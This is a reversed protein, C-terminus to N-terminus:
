SSLENWTKYLRSNVWLGRESYIMAFLILYELSVIWLQEYYPVYSYNIYTLMILASWLWISRFPVFVSCFLLMSLYWPHVTTALLYYVLLVTFLSLIPNQWSKRWIKYYSGLFVLALGPGVYAILNYGSIWQGVSRLLYYISANFEFKRFYLDISSLFEAFNLGLLIPSFIVVSALGFVLIAKVRLERPMLLWLFPFILLSLLKVGVSLALLILAIFYKKQAFWVLAMALFAIMVMELHLNGVGEIVILPNLWYILICSPSLKLIRLLKLGFFLTVLDAMLFFSKLIIAAGKIGLVSWSSLYFLLQSVPPYVTFYEPSNMERLLEAKDAFDQEIGTPLYAYANLGLHWLRGDWIFRYIDDSLLPFFFLGFVRVLIGAVIAILLAKQTFPIERVNKVLLFYSVFAPVLACLLLTFESQAPIALVYAVSLMWVALVLIEKLYGKSPM